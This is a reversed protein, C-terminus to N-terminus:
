QTDRHSWIECRKGCCKYWTGSYLILVNTINHILCIKCDVNAIPHWYCKGRMCFCKKLESMLTSVNQIWFPFQQLLLLVNEYSILPINTLIMSGSIIYTSRIELSLLFWSSHHNGCNCWRWSTLIIIDWIPNKLNIASILALLYAITSLWFIM